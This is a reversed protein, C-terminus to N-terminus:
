IQLHLKNLNYVDKPFVGKGDHCCHEKSFPYFGGGLRVWRQKEDKRHGHSHPTKGM